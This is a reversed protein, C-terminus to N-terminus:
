NEICGFGVPAGLLWLSVCKYNRISSLRSNGWRRWKCSCMKPNSWYIPLRFLECLNDPTPFSNWPLSPRCHRRQGTEVHWVPAVLTPTDIRSHLGLCGHWDWDRGCMQKCSKVAFQLCRHCHSCMQRGCCYQLANMFCLLQAHPRSVFGFIHM